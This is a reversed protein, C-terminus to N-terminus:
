IRGILEAGIKPLGLEAAANMAKIVVAHVVLPYAHSEMEPSNPRRRTLRNRIADFADAEFVDNLVVGIRKFKLALYDEMSGNLSKLRAVECRRIVERADYNTREDLLRGLEPQGILVIGLLKRFGDELEWFRKLYKLTSTALDHAEEIILAHANGTRASNALIRQVQRSKAELSRKPQETSLDAIIADCIHAATLATKDINQPQVVVIPENDRRIRDILDRRLTSKGSGSEGIVAIFGAHRAAYYMSERIYRQEKSLFVDAPGQVDDVFPNRALSFHERAAPTLMEIEPLDYHIPEEAASPNANSSGPGQPKEPVTHPGVALDTEWATEIEAEPVGNQRLLEAVAQRYQERDVREPWHQHTLLRSVASVTMPADGGRVPVRLVRCVERQGIDHRKLLDRLRLPNARHTLPRGTRM